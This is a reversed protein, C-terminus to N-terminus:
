PQVRRVTGEGSLGTLFPYDAFFSVSESGVSAMGGDAHILSNSPLLNTRTAVISSKKKKNVDEKELHM